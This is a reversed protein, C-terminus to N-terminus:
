EESVRDENQFLLRQLRKHECPTTHISQIWQDVVRWCMNYELHHRERSCIGRSMDASALITRRVCLGHSVFYIRWVDTPKQDHSSESICNLCSRQCVCPTLFCNIWFLFVLNPLHAPHIIFNVLCFAMDILSVQRDTSKGSLLNHITEHPFPM